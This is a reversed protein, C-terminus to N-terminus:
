LKPGDATFSARTSKRRMAETLLWGVSGLTSRELRPNTVPAPVRPMMLEPGSEQCDTGGIERVPCIPNLKPRVILAVPCYLLVQCTASLKELIQFVCVKLNPPSKRYKCILSRFM